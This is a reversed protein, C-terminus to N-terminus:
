RPRPPMMPPPRTVRGDVVEMVVMGNSLTSQSGTAKRGYEAMGCYSPLLTIDTEFVLSADGDGWAGVLTAPDDAECARLFALQRRSLRVHVTEPWLRHFHARVIQHPPHIARFVDHFVISRAYYRLQNGQTWERIGSSPGHHAVDFIAGDVVPRDHYVVQIDKDPYALQLMKCLGVPSSAESLIHVGTGVVLRLTSVNPIELWPSVNNYAIVLQDMLRTTVLQDGFAKGQTLDGNHFVLIEDGAAFEVAAAIHERYVRWLYEQTGTLAPEYERLQGREDEEFLRTGPAM